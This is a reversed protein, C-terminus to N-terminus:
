SAAADLRRGSRSGTFAIAVAFMPVAAFVFVWRVGVAALAGMLAISVPELTVRPLEIVSNVRGLLERPTRTQLYTPLAVDTSYAAGAGLVALIAAALLYNPRLGLLAFGAGELVAMTIIVLGWQRFLGTVGAAVAGVLQGLGSASVMVGLAIAGHPHERALAPLGVAFLGSYSLTAASVFLLVMRLEANRGAYNLGGRIQGLLQAVSYRPPGAEPGAELGADASTAAAGKPAALLATAAVFFTVANFGLAVSSGATTLLLAGLVPGVFLSIQEAVSLMANARPLDSADVLTTLIAGSAPWFFADAIGFLAGILYFQWIQLQGAIATATLVTVLSGRALHSALMVTRPSFQDTVAGGVLMLAGRPVAAVVLVAALVAASGSISLVLWIFVIQYSTDGIM